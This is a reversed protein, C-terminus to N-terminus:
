LKTMQRYHIPCDANDNSFLIKKFIVHERHATLRSSVIYLQFHALTIISFQM